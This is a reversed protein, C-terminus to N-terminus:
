LIIKISNTEYIIPSIFPAVAITLGLRHSGVVLHAPYELIGHGFDGGALDEHANGVVAIVPNDAGGGGGGHNGIHAGDVDSHLVVGLDEKIFGGLGGVEVVPVAGPAPMLDPEFVGAANLGLHIQHPFKFQSSDAEPM